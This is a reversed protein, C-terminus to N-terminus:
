KPDVPPLGARAHGANDLAIRANRRMGQAKPRTLPTGAFRARFAEDNATATTTASYQPYLPFFVIRECGEAQLRAVVSRTSPNGYRMAFDVIVLDYTCHEIASLAVRGDGVSDVSHGDDEFLRAISARVAPDDDVM